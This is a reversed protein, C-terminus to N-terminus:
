GIFDSNSDRRDWWNVGRYSLTSYDGKFRYARPKVGTLPEMERDSPLLWFPLGPNLERLRV